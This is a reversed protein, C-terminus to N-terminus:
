KSPLDRKNAIILIPVNTMYPFTLINHFEERVEDIRERDTSDIVFILGEM